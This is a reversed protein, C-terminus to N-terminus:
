SVGELALLLRKWALGGTFGGLRGDSAVVRHCPIFLPIANTACAQGAARAARPRGAAAALEAYSIVRGRPIASIARWAQQIFPGGPPLELPPCRVSRGSFLARIFREAAQAAAPEAAPRAPRAPLLAFPSADKVPAPPLQCGTVRGKALFVRITGWTTPLDLGAVADDVIGNGGQPSRRAADSRPKSLAPSARSAPM